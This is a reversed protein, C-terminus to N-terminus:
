MKLMTKKKTNKRFELIHPFYKVLIQRVRERSIGYIKAIERYTITEDKAIVGIELIEKEELM